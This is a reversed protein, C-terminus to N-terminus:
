ATKKDLEGNMKDELKKALGELWSKISPKKSSFMSSLSRRALPIFRLGDGLEKKSEISTRDYSALLNEIMIEIQKNSRVEQEDLSERVEERFKLDAEYQARRDALGQRIQDGITGATDLNNLMKLRPAKGGTINSRIYSRIDKFGSSAKEGELELKASVPFVQPDTINREKAYKKVGNINVELDDAEMLDSQQLVFIVKKHWQDHIYDFFEWASQRYPNKAEFVFVILDSGPIFNETIQQHNKIITNTGPTDVIAIEKLIDVPLLIKKLHENIVLTQENEGYIIEQITDTCPDPAVKCIEKESELLANVFSSKGAKVEGVVVFLFPEHIRNRLESVTKALEEHRIDITLQHLDKVLEDIEIRAAQLEPSLIENM